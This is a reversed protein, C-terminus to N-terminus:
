SSQTMYSRGLAPISSIDGANAPSNKEVSGRPPGDVQIRCINKFGVALLSRRVEEWIRIREREKKLWTIFLPNKAVQEVQSAWLHCSNKYCHLDVRNHNWSGNLDAQNM